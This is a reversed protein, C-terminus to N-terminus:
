HSPQQVRESVRGRADKTFAVRFTPASGSSTGSSPKATWPLHHSSCDQLTESPPVFAPFAFEVDGSAANPAIAGSWRFESELDLPAFRFAGDTLPTFFGGFSVEADVHDGSVPCVIAFEFAEPSVLQSGDAKTVVAFLLPFGQSTKREV